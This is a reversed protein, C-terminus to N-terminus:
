VKNHILTVSFPSTERISNWCVKKSRRTPHMFCRTHPKIYVPSSKTHNHRLIASKILVNSHLIEVFYSFIKPLRSTQRVNALNNHISIVSSRFQLVFKFHISLRGHPISFETSHNKANWWSGNLKVPVAKMDPTTLRRRLDASLSQQRRGTRRDTQMSCKPKHPVIKM